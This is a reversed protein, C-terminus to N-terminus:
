LGPGGRLNIGLRKVLMLAWGNDWVRGIALEMQLFALVTLAGLRPALPGGGGDRALGRAVHVTLPLSILTFVRTFDIALAAVLFCGAALLPVRRERPRTFYALVPIWFWSFSLALMVYPRVLNNRALYELREGLWAVRPAGAMGLQALYVQHVGVGALWGALLPVLAAPRRRHLLAHVALVVTAQELHALTMGLALAGVVVPQETLLLLFYAGVLFADSKGVWFALVHILPSLALFRFFAWREDPDRVARHGYLLILGLALATAGLYLVYMRRPSVAGLAHGVFINILSAHLYRDRPDALPDFPRAHLEGLSSFDAFRVGTVLVVAVLLLAARRTAWGGGPESGRM